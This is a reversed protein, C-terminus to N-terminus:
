KKYIKWIGIKHTYFVICKSEESLIVGGNLEFGRSFNEGVVTFITSKDSSVIKIDKIKTENGKESQLTGGIFSDKKLTYIQLIPAPKKIAERYNSADFSHTEMQYNPFNKSGVLYSFQMNEVQSFIHLSLITFICFITKKM